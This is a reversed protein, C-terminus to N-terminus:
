GPGAQAQPEPLVGFGPGQSSMHAELLLLWVPSRIGEAEEGPWIPPPLSSPATAM